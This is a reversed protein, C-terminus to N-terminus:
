NIISVSTLWIRLPPSAFINIYSFAKSTEIINIYLLIYIFEDQFFHMDDPFNVDDGSIWQEDKDLNDVFLHFDVLLTGHTYFTWSYLDVLLPGHTFPELTITWMYLNVLLPGHAFAWSYLNVLLPGRIFIWSYLDM